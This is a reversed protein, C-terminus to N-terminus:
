RYIAILKEISQIRVGFWALYSKLSARAPSQSGAASATTDPQNDKEPKDLEKHLSKLKELQGIDARKKIEEWVCDESLRMVCRGHNDNANKCPGYRTGAPCESVPCIGGTYAIVCNGCVTCIGRAVPDDSYSVVASGAPNLPSIIPVDPKGLFASKVGAACSLVVLADSKAIAKSYRKIAQRMINEECCVLVCEGKVVKVHLDNLIRKMIKIGLAGGTGSLNACFICSFVTVSNVNRFCHAIEKQSKWVTRNM